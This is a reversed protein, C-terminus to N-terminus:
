VVSAAGEAPKVLVNVEAFKALDLRPWLATRLARKFVDEAADAAHEATSADLTLVMRFRGLTLSCSPVAERALRAADHAFRALASDTALSGYPESELEVIWGQPGAVAGPASDITAGWGPAGSVATM